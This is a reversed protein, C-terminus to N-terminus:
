RQAEDANEGVGEVLEPEISGGFARKAAEYEEAELRDMYADSAAEFQAKADGEPDPLNDQEPDRGPYDPVPSPPASSPEMGKRDPGAVTEGEGVSVEELLASGGVRINMTRRRPEAPASVYPPINTVMAAIRRAMERKGQRPGSLVAVWEPQLMLWRYLKETLRDFAEDHYQTQTDIRKAAQHKRRTM